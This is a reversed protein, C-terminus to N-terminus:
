IAAVLIQNKYLEFFGTLWVGGWMTGQQYKKESHWGYMEKKSEKKAITALSSIGM